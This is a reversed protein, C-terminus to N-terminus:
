LNLGRQITTIQCESEETRPANIFTGQEYNSSEEGKVPASVLIFNVKPFCVICINYLFVFKPSNEGDVNNCIERFFTGYSNLM